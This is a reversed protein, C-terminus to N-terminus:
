QWLNKIWLSGNSPWSFLTKSATELMSDQSLFLPKAKSAKKPLILGSLFRYPCGKIDWSQIEGNEPMMAHCPMAQCLHKEVGWVEFKSMATM